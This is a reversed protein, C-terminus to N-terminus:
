ESASTWGTADQQAQKLSIPRASVSRYAVSKEYLAKTVPAIHRRATRDNPDFLKPAQFYSAGNDKSPDYPDIGESDGGPAPATDTPATSAPEQRFTSREPSVQEGPAISPQTETAPPMAQQPAPATSAGPVVV